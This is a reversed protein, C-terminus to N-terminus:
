NVRSISEQATALASAACALLAATDASHGDALRQLDQLARQAGSVKRTLEEVALVFEDINSVAIEASQYYRDSQGKDVHVFQPTVVEQGKIDEKVVRVARIINRAQHVRYKEGAIGDDWEFAKHLPADAPRSEDVVANPKLQGDKARIRELEEGVVDASIPAVNRSWKYKM